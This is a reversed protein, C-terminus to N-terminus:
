DLTSAWTKLNLLQAAPSWGLEVTVKIGDSSAGHGNTTVPKTVPVRAKAACRLDKWMEKQM